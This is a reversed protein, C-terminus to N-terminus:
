RTPREPDEGAASLADREPDHGTVATLIARGDPTLRLLAVKEAESMTQPRTPM